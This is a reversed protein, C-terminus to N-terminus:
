PILKSRVRPRVAVVYADDPLGEGCVGLVDGPARRAGSVVVGGALPGVQVQKQAGEDCLDIELVIRGSTDVNHRSVARRIQGDRAFPLDDQGRPSGVRRLDQLQAADSWSIQQM